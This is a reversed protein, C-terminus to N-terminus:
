LLEKGVPFSPIAGNKETSLAAYQNAFTLLSLANAELFDELANVSIQQEMLKALIAGIFADGAGTTDIAQVVPSPIHLHTKRTYLTAGAAGKTLFVVKVNGTFLSHVALEVNELQTIFPLEDEAIKLIHVEPLFSRIANRCADECHWLPLRVNPDFSILCNQAIAHEILTSHAERMPSDVLNVSCFHIIDGARVHALPLQEKAYLLDAALHRYFVFDRHGNESLSVFALSTSGLSTKEIFSTNVGAKGLSEVLFEGFADDGVQSILAASYGLKAVVAAVNAPAGGCNKTFNEVSTLSRGQEVPTFDILVEGIAFLSNM